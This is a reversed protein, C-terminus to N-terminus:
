ISVGRKMKHEHDQIEDDAGKTEIGNHQFQRMSDAEGPRWYSSLRNVAEMSLEM